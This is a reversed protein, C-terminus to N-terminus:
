LVIEFRALVGGHNVNMKMAVAKAASSSSM